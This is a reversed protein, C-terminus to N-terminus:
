CLITPTCSTPFNNVELEIEEKIDLKDFFIKKGLKESIQSQTQFLSTVGKQNVIYNEKDWSITAVNQGHEEVIWFKDKLVEKAKIM